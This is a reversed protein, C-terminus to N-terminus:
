DCSLGYLDLGGLLITKFENKKQQILARREPFKCKSLKSNKGWLFDDNYVFYAPGINAFVKVRTPDTDSYRYVLSDDMKQIKNQVAFYNKGYTLKLPKISCLLPKGNKATDFNKFTLGIFNERCDDIRCVVEDVTVEAFGKTGYVYYKPEIIKKIEKELEKSKILQVIGLTDYYEFKRVNLSAHKYFDNELSDTENIKTYIKQYEGNKDSDFMEVVIATTNHALNYVPYITNDAIEAELQKTDNAVEKSSIDKVKSNKEKCSIFLSFSFAIFCILTNKLM